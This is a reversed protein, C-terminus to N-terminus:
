CLAAFVLSVVVMCRLSAHCVRQDTLTCPERIGGHMDALRGAWQGASCDGVQASGEKGEYKFEYRCVPM